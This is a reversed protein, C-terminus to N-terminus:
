LQFEFILKTVGQITYINKGIRSENLFLCTCYVRVHFLNIGNQKIPTIKKEGSTEEKTSFDIGIHHM